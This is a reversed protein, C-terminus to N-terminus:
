AMMPEPVGLLAPTTEPYACQPATFEGVTFTASVISLGGTIQSVILPAFNAFTEWLVAADASMQQAIFDAERNLTQGYKNFEVACTRAIGIDVGYRAEPACNPAVPTAQVSTVAVSVGACAFINPGMRRQIATDTAPLMYGSVGAAVGDLSCALRAAIVYPSIM